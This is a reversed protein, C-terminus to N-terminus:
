KLTIYESYINGMAESLDVTNVVMEQSQNDCAMLNVAEGSDNLYHVTLVEPNLGNEKGRYNRRILVNLYNIIYPSHTTVILCSHVRNFFKLISDLVELQNNPYLNCEPEEVAYSYYSKHATAYDMTLMLPIASQIGSSAAKLRLRNGDEMVIYDDEKDHVFDVGLMPIRYHELVSKANNYEVSFYLLNKSIADQVLNLAPLLKTFSAYMIREAPVYLSAKLADTILGQKKEIPEVEEWQINEKQTRIAVICALVYLMREYSLKEGECIMELKVDNYHVILSLLYEKKAGKDFFIGTESYEVVSEERMYDQICYDNLFENWSKTQEKGLIHFYLNYDCVISLIKALTSKGTGQGGILFNYEKLEIDVDKIPGLNRLKIKKM